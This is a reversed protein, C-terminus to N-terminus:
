PAADGRTQTPVRPYLSPTEGCHTGPRSVRLSPTPAIDTAEGVSSELHRAWEPDPVRTTRPLDSRSM